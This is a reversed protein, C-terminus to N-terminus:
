NIWMSFFYHVAYSESLKEEIFTPVMGLKFIERSELATIPSLFKSPIVCIDNKKEYNQYAIGLMGPGTTSLVYNLKDHVDINPGDLHKKLSSIVFSLFSSKEVSAILANGIVKYESSEESLYCDHNSFLDSISKICEYDMDVYVGGIEHLILYKLVDVKQISYRYRSILEAMNPYKKEILHQTSEKDWLIYKYDPHNERWTRSLEECYRPLPQNDESIWIQHIIKNIM